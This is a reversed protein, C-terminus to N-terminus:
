KSPLQWVPDFEPVSKALVNVARALLILTPGDTPHRTLLNGLLSTATLCDGAEFANLAAEYQQKLLPWEGDGAVTVEYLKVPEAINVVRVCCLRRYHFSEDLRQATAGTVLLKTRLHKTAGQVRSALNVTNGLPGYKFKRKTGTNGVRAIGSNIGIGFGTEQGLVDAWRQNLRPLQKLMDIGARCALKAHDPQSVPAGWMAMLEDGIYDVLVGQNAIVCESLVGMIDNIWAVTGSPGLRESVRSFGTIDCFLLSVEADKGALLDPDAELQRALEPTFFQEFQVRAALAAKEQDLRALGAAVGCALLEVLKAEILSIEPRSDGSQVRRRDGYLAGIVEGESNLIPAAVFAHVDALSAADRTSARPVHRFTRKEARVRELITRSPRWLDVAETQEAAHLAEIRWQDGDLILVAAFDLGVITAATQASQPLFAPSSAASQFVVMTAQLWDLLLERDVEGGAASILGPLMTAQVNARGPAMTPQALRELDLEEPAEQELRIVRDGLTVLTPIQVACSNGPALTGISDLLVPSKASTNTVRVTGDPQPELRAHFRSVANEQLKAIILRAGEAMAARHYPNPENAQQRGIELPVDLDTSYVLRHQQYIKVRVVSLKDPM